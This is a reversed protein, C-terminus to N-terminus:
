VVGAIHVEAFCTVLHGFRLVQYSLVDLNCMELLSLNAAKESFSRLFM